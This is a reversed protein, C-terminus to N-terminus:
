SGTLVTRRKETSLRWSFSAFPRFAKVRSWIFAGLKEFGSPSLWLKDYSEWNGVIENQRFPKRGCFDVVLEVGMQPLLRWWSSSSHMSASLSSSHGLSWQRLKYKSICNMAPVQHNERWDYFANCFIAVNGMTLFFIAPRFCHHSSLITSIQQAQPKLSMTTFNLSRFMKLIQHFVSFLLAFPCIPHKWSYHSFGWMM